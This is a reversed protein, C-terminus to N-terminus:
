TLHSQRLEVSIPCHRQPQGPKLRGHRIEAFIVM